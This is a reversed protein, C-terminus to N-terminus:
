LKGIRNLTARLAGKEMTEIPLALLTKARKKLSDCATKFAADWDPEAVPDDGRWHARLRGTGLDNLISELPIARVAHGTCPVLNNM